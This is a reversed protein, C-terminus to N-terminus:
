SHLCKEIAEINIQYNVYENCLTYYLQDLDHITEDFCTDGLRDRVIVLSDIEDSVRKQSDKNYKLKEELEEKSCNRLEQIRNEIRDM